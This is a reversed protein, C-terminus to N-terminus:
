IFIAAITSMLGFKTSNAYDCYATYTIGTKKDTVKLDKGQDELFTIYNQVCFHM